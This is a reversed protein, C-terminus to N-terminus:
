RTFQKERSAGMIEAKVVTIVAQYKKKTKSKPDWFLPSQAVLLDGPM